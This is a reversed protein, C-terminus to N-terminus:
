GVSGNSTNVIVKKRKKPPDAQGRAVVFEVSKKDETSSRQIETKFQFLDVRDNDDIIMGDKLNLEFLHDNVHNMEWKSPAPVMSLFYIILKDDLSTDVYVYPCENPPSQNIETM